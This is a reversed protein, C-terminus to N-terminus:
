VTVVVYGRGKKKYWMGKYKYLKRGNVHIIKNGRPLNRVKIGVPPRVQVYKRGRKVYWKGTRFHYKKGKHIFVNWPHVKTVVFETTIEMTNTTEAKASYISGLLILGVFIFKLNKM